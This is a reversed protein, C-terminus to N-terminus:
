TKRKEPPSAISLSDQQRVFKGPIKQLQESRREHIKALAKRHWRNYILSLYHHAEAICPDGDLAAHFFREAAPLSDCRYYIVGLLSNAWPTNKSSKDLEQRILRMSSGPDVDYYTSAFQLPDLESLIYKAAEALVSDLKMFEPDVMFDRVSDVDSTKHIGVRCAYNRGTERLNVQVETTELGLTGRIASRFEIFQSPTLGFSSKGVSLDPPSLLEVEHPRSLPLVPHRSDLKQLFTTEIYKADIGMKGASDAVSRVAVYCANKLVTHGIAIVVTLLVAFQLWKIYGGIKQQNFM